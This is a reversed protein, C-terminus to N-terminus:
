TVVLVKQVTERVGNVRDPINVSFRNFFAAKGSDVHDYGAFLTYGILGLTVAGRLIEITPLLGAVTAAMPPNFATLAAVVATAGEPIAGITKLFVQIRATKVAYGSSLTKVAEAAQNVSEVSAKSEQAWKTVEENITTTAFLSAVLQEALDASDDKKKHSTRLEEIWERVKQRAEEEADKGILSLVWDYAQLLLRVATQLLSKIKENLGQVVKEILESAEKGVPAVAKKLMESDLSFLTDLAYSGTKSAQRAIDRLSRRVQDQLSSLAEAPDAPGGRSPEAAMFPSLGAELPAELVGAL